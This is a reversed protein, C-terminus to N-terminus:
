DYTGRVVVEFKDTTGSKSGTTIWLWSNAACAASDFQTVSSGTTASTVTTGATVAATGSSRDTGHYVKLLISPSSLSAGVHVSRIETVTFAAGVFGIGYNMSDALADVTLSFTVVRTAKTLYSGSAQKGGLATDLAAIASEATKTADTYNVPTHTYPLDTASAASITTGNSKVIGNIAAVVPDYETLSEWTQTGGTGWMPVQGNTPSDTPVVANTLGLATKVAAADGEIIAVWSTGNSHYATGDNLIAWNGKYTAASYGGLASLDAIRLLLRNDDGAAVTGSTTGVAKFRSDDGAAVTGSTTGVAKFRSDDGAAVTGSTTGTNKAAADGLSPKGSLSGYAGDFTSTGAGIAARLAAADSAALFTRAAPSITGLAFTDAGTSYFYQNASFSLDKLALLTGGFPVSSGSEFVMTGGSAITLTTGPGIKLNDRAVKTTPNYPFMAQGLGTTATALALAICPLYKM